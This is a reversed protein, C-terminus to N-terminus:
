YVAVRDKYGMLPREMAFWSLSSVLIVVALSLAANFPQPLQLWHRLEMIILLHCLYMMYSITGLYVLGKATLLRYVVGDSRAAVVGAVIGVMVVGILSYGLVNFLLSNESTRFEPLLVAMGAFAVSGLAAVRFGHRALANFRERDRMRAIAMLGGAALLDLRCPLLAYVPRFDDFSITLAGRVVPAILLCAWSLRWMGKSGLFFVLLPWLLYFQEEVALSWMPSLLPSGIGVFADQINSIYFVYWYWHERWEADFFAFTMLLVLYYAPFIRLFRRYYFSRFFSDSGRQRLLIATILFGSLVFFLDVGAWLLPADVAHHTFVALFALARLGDLQRLRGTPETADPAM